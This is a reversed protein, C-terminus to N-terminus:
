RRNQTWIKFELCFETSLYECVNIIFKMFIAATLWLSYLFNQGYQRYDPAYVNELFASVVEFALGRFPSMCCTGYQPQVFM